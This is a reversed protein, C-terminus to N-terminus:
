NTPVLRKLEQDWNLIVHIQTAAQQQEVAKLMLFRQGDPSVDYNPLSTPTPVYPGEFLVKPKGSSFDPQTMIDVAMMKNGNRYFLERGNPNWVAEMGGGTSIQWKSGPGPYPRVYVEDRGSESEDSHYALWRGDPSFIPSSESFPTRLFPEATRDSLRLVWIDNGTTPTQERFALFRGDSSRSTPSQPYQSTTLREPQDSGDAAQWFLNAPSGSGFVLRKGDPTWIPSTNNAGEFTVRTLTERTLDYVWVQRGGLEAVTVGIRQGDPSLRPYTFPQLAAPIAQEAGKRDVWVLSEPLAIVTGTTPGMPTVFGQAYILTGNESFSYQAGGSRLQILGEVVRVPAGTVELRGPDFPAAILTGNQVYLLHGTPSYRPFTGGQPLDRREGTRLSYIGLQPNIWTGGAEGASFLVENAGPLFQPWRAAILGNQANLTNRLLQPTGGAAAVHRLDGLFSGLVITDDTGWTGGGFPGDAGPRETHVILLRGDSVSVKGLKGPALFGLWQGDPSFFPSAADETGPLPRAEPSDISRIYVQPPASGSRAVYALRSGDASLAIAPSQLDLQLGAPLSIVFHATSARTVVASTLRWVVLGAAAAVIICASVLVPMWTRVARAPAVPPPPSLLADDIELVALSIHSLRRRPDKELCRRLLTRIPAPTDAPLARWDPELTLISAIIDSLTEGPFAARGTLMEFLVCGFAWIDTRKDVDQGRAQEPSMYAVTGLILGDRTAGITMTPAQSAASADDPRAAKALGFDLVKVVGDPTIKINAPKLDRHVIGKEYAADLAEAIQRAIALAETMPLGTRGRGLVVDSKRLRSGTGSGGAMHEALTEGEVLELVLARLGDLEEFGYIAAIHPHNLAALVRAEREFRALREPDSTFGRPLIKIAVDRGLKGDRVRYVEGMGGRGLLSLVRYNGLQRGTLDETAVDRLQALAPGGLFDVFSGTSVRQDLLAQVERQLGVDGGCANALFETRDAEACARAAHYLEQVQDWREPTMAAHKERLHVQTSGGALAV